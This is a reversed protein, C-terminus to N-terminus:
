YYILICGDGGAGGVTDKNGSSAGGGGGGLGGAGGQKGSANGGPGLYGAGGGGAGFGIGTGSSGNGGAFRDGTGGAGGNSTRFSAIASGGGGIIGRGGAAGTATSTNPNSTVAGAGGGVVGPGGALNAAGGSGAYGANANGAPTGTYASFISGASLANNAGSGGGGALAVNQRTNSTLTGLGGGGGGAFVMGFQTTGGRNGIHALRNEHLSSNSFLDTGLTADAGAGGAGVICSEPVYTWGAAYGGAGGGSSSIADTHILATGGVTLATGQAISTSNVTFSTSTAATVIAGSLNYSTPTNGQITVLDGASFYNSATYIVPGVFTITGTAASTTANVVSFSTGATSDTVVFTGNYGSPSAGSIQVISGVPTATTTSYTVKGTVPSNATVATITGGSVAATIVGRGYAYAHTQTHTGTTANTVTFDTASATAITANSVNYGTINSGSISVQMGAVYNNNCTYTITTGDGSIATVYRHNTLANTGGGGGGGICVAYVRKVNDPIYTTPGSSTIVHRLKLGYPADSFLPNNYLNTSM